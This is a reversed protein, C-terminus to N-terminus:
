DSITELDAPFSPCYGEHHFPFRVADPVEVLAFKAIVDSPLTVSSGSCTIVEMSM